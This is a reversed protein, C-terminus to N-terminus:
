SRVHRRRVHESSAELESLQKELKEHLTTRDFNSITAQQTLSALEETLATRHIKEAEIRANLEERPGGDLIADLARDIRDQVGKLEREIDPRRDTIPLEARRQEVASGIADELIAPDLLEDLAQIVAEDVISQRLVLDNSCVAPGRRYRMTCGYFQVATRKPATGHLRTITGMAGGCVGCKAFGTLLYKSEDPNEPQGHLRGDSHRPYVSKTRGLRAQVRQWLELSVIRLEPADIRMWAEQARRRQRKTGGRM